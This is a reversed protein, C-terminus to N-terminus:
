MMPCVSQTGLPSAPAQGPSPTCITPADPLRRGTHVLKNGVGGAGLWMGVGWCTLPPLHSFGLTITHTLLSSFNVTPSLQRPLGTGRQVCSNHGLSRVCM